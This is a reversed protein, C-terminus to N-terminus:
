DKWFLGCHCRGLREVDGGRTPRCPCQYETKHELRCPCYFDGFRDRKSLLGELIEEKMENFAYGRIRAFEDVRARIEDDSLKEQREGTWGEETKRVALRQGCIPCIVVDGESAKGNEPRFRASCVPCFVRVQAEDESM